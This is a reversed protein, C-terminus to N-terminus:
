GKSSAGYRRSRSCARTREFTSVAVPLEPDNLDHLHFEDLEVGEALPFLDVGAVYCGKRRRLEAGLIGGACGLDLVRSGPPVLDLAIAQPSEHELKPSYRANGEREVPKVDFRRDYLLSLEQIRAKGASKIV